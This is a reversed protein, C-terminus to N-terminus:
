ASVDLSGGKGPDATPVTTDQISAAAELLSLAAEGQAKAADLSKSVMKM